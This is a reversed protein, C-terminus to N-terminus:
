RANVKIGTGDFEERWMEALSNLNERAPPKIEPLPQEKGLRKFKAGGLQHYGLLEVVKVVGPMQERVFGAIARINEEDDNISPIVPTRIWVGINEPKGSAPDRSAMLKALKRANELILTNDVGAYQRHKEGDMLKLDLLVLDTHDLVSQLIDWRSYATTDLATHLGRDRCMALLNKVFQHQYLPDGGSATIGGGSNEYFARDRDLEEFAGAVTIKKGVMELAKPFCIDVCSGCLLCVEADYVRGGLEEKHERFRGIQEKPIRNGNKDVFYLAGQECAAFCGLDLICKNEDFMLEPHPSKSEPNHCWECSLYCGKLFLTTRIGPGDHTSYRQIDFIRGELSPDYDANV